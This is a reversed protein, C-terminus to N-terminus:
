EPEREQMVLKGRRVQYMGRRGRPSTFKTEKVDEGDDQMKELRGQSGRFKNPRPSRGLTKIMGARFGAQRKTFDIDDESSTGAESDEEYGSATGNVNADNEVDDDDDDDEESEEEDDEGEEEEEDDEDDDEQDEDRDTDTMSGGNSHLHSRHADLSPTQDYEDEEDIRGALEARRHAQDSGISGSRSDGSPRPSSLIRVSRSEAEDDRHDDGDEEEEEDDDDFDRDEDQDDDDQEGAGEDDKDDEEDDDEMIMQDAMLKRAGGPERREGPGSGTKFVVATTKGDSVKRQLGGASEPCPPVVAFTLCSRRPAVGNPAQEAVAEAVPLPSVPRDLENAVQVDNHPLHRESSKRLISSGVPQRRPSTSPTLVTMVSNHQEGLATAPGLLIPRPTHGEPTLTTSHVAEEDMSRRVSGERSSGSMTEMASTGAGQGSASRSGDERKKQDQLMMTLLSVSGRRGQPHRSVPGAETWEGHAGTGSLGLGREGDFPSPVAVLQGHGDQSEGASGWPTPALEDSTAGAESCPSLCPTSGPTKKEEKEEPRSSRAVSQRHPQPDQRNPASNLRLHLPTSTFLPPTRTRSRPPYVRNSPSSGGVLSRISTAPSVEKPSRSLSSPMNRGPGASEGKLGIYMKRSTKEMSGKEDPEVEMKNGLSPSFGAMVRTKTMSRSGSGVLGRRSASSDSGVPSITEGM